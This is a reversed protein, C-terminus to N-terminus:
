WGTLVKDGSVFPPLCPWTVAWSLHGAEESGLRLVETSVPSGPIGNRMCIGSWPLASSGPPVTLAAPAACGSGPVLVQPCLQAQPAAPCSDNPDHIQSGEPLVLPSFSELDDWFRQETSLSVVFNFNFIFAQRSFGSGLWAWPCVFM